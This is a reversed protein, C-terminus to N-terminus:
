IENTLLSSILKAAVDAAPVEYSGQQIANRIATVKELRVDPESASISVQSAAASVKAQDSSLASVSANKDAKATAGSNSPPSPSVQSLADMGTHVNM